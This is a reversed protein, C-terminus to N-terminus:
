FGVQVLTVGKRDEPYGVGEHVLGVFFYMKDERQEVAVTGTITVEDGPNLWDAVGPESWQAPPRSTLAWRFPYGHGGGWDLGLRWFGGGKEAWRQGEIASFPVNTTYRYGAAPGQTRIPVDGTNKIKATVTIVNGLAVADPAINVYTIHAEARGPAEVTIQGSREVVNGITDAARVTYTYVGTSLLSGDPRKGDWIHSQEYPGEELDSIFPVTEKSNAINITVTATIPLRYSFTAVDDIADENPSITSPTVSLGDFMPLTTAADRIQITGTARTPAGGADPVAEVVYTYTGDPLIRQVVPGGTGEVTGDFRLTYPESAPIRLASNRLPYRAGQQDQVYITVHARAGITYSITATDDQGDGNPTILLTSPGVASLVETRSCGALLLLLVAVGGLWLWTSARFAPAFRSTLSSELRISLTDAPPRPKLRTVSNSDPQLRSRWLVTIVTM